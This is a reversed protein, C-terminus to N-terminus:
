GPSRTQACRRFSLNGDIVFNSLLNFAYYLKLTERSVRKEVMITKSEFDHMREQAEETYFHKNFDSRYKLVPSVSANGKAKKSTPGHSAQIKTSSRIKKRMGTGPTVEPVEVRSSTEDIAKDKEEVFLKTNEEGHM